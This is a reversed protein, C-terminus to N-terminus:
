FLGVAGDSVRLFQARPGLRDFLERDTGTLWAQAGLNGIEDFLAARHGDDLHAVIEDLLLLPAAGKMATQLRANALVIAILLAKQEGTSCRAAPLGKTAHRVSLDSRHPGATTKGAESDMVRRQALHTRFAEEAELAPMTELWDELLGTVAAEARPFPGIGACLAGRLRALAERRAAAIAVGHEAMAAELAALWADDAGGARLLTMRERMVREYAAANRGHGPELGLTLRDLFRRRGSPAEVFMRDMGPTLWIIRVLASLAGPGSVKNGDLKVVRREISRAGAVAAQPVAGNETGTGVRTPGDPGTLTAAVSWGRGCGIRVVDNLRAGRLGRGPGLYSVAELLNTKGAGNPGTLVVPLPDLDIEAYEYNRFNNLVLRKVSIARPNRPETSPM